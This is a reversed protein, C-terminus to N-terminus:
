KWFPLSSFPQGHQRTEGYLHVGVGARLNGMGKLHFEVVPPLMVLSHYDHQPLARESVAPLAQLHPHGQLSLPTALM